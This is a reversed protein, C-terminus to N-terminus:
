VDGMGALQDLFVRNAQFTANVTALDAFASKILNADGITLGFQDVLNQATFRDLFRKFNVGRNLHHAVARAIDGATINIDNNTVTLGAM